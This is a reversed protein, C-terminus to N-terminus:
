PTKKGEDDSHIRKLEDIEKQLRDLERAVEEFLRVLAFGEPGRSGLVRTAERVISEASM